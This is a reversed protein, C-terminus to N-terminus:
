DSYAFMFPVNQSHFLHDLALGFGFCVVLNFSMEHKRTQLTLKVAENPKGVVNEM